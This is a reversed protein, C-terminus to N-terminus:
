GKKTEEWHLNPQGCCRRGRGEPDILKDGFVQRYKRQLGALQMLVDAKKPVDGHQRLYQLVTSYGEDFAMGAIRLERATFVTEKSYLHKM